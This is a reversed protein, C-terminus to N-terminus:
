SKGCEKCRTIGLPNRHGCHVCTWGPPISGESKETGDFAAIEEKQIDKEAKTVLIGFGHVMLGGIWASVSGGVATFLGLLFGGDMLAVVGSVVSALIGLFVAVAAVNEIKKGANEFM